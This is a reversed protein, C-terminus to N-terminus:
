FKIFKNFGRKILEIFLMKFTYNSVQNKYLFQIQKLVLDDVLDITYKNSRIYSLQAKTMNPLSYHFIKKIQSTIQEQVKKNNDFMSILLLLTFLWKYLRSTDELRSFIGSMYRYVSMTDKLKGIKGFQALYMYLFYDGIPTNLFEEPFSKILNKIVVSPTHIYNGKTALTEITEFNEPVKTIFDEILRGDPMLIKVPHFCIVYDFNKDLFDVQKQLKNPDTWYDDGECLAIYEGKCQEMSWIFNPMMGKNASHRTYRIISSKPHTNVIEQVVAETKDTSCDDAVILEIDFNTTQALVGLIAEKIFLEHNYTIM